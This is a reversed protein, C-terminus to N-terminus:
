KVTDLSTAVATYTARAKARLVDDLPTAVAIPLQNSVWKGVANRTNPISLFGIADQATARIVADIDKVTKMSPNSVLKDAAIRYVSALDTKFKAKNADTDKSYAESLAKTLEDPSPPIPPIPGPPIPPLPQKGVNIELVYTKYNIKQAKWDITKAILLIKGVGEPAALVEVDKSLLSHNTKWNSPVTWYYEHATEPCIVKFPVKTVLVIVEGDIYLSDQKTSKLGLKEAPSYAMGIEATVPLCLLITVLVRM